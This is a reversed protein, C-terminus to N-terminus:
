RMPFNERVYDTDHTSPIQFTFKNKGQSTTVAFDGKLIIDMGILVDIGNLIGETVKLVSFIINNPLLINVSYTDVIAMGNAHYVKGKGTSELGLKQVVNRSIVSGTAGTDWLADFKTIPPHMSGSPLEDPNFAKCVGCVTKLTKSSKDYEMTFASPNMMSM